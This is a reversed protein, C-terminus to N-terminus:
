IEKDKKWMEFTYDSGCNIFGDNDRIRKLAEKSTM